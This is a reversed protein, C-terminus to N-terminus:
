RSRVFTLAVIRSAGRGRLAASCAALTAGTTRVDDVLLVEDPVDRLARVRPPDALRAARPRGVQRPGSSRWLCAACDLGTMRALALAIEEAPDYGRWRWRWPAAPVPVLVGRLEGPPCARAIAEAAVAALGLRRGFKLGHAIARACGDHDAAAIALSLGGTGREVVPPTRGLESECAACIIEAAPCVSGCAACRPPAVLSAVRRVPDLLPPM